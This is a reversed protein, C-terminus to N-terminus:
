KGRGVEKRRVRRIQGEEELKKEGEEGTKDDDNNNLAIMKMM